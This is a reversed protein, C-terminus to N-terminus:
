NFVKKYYKYGNSIHKTYYILWCESNFSETNQTLRYMYIDIGQYSQAANNHIISVFGLKFVSKETFLHSLGYVGLKVLPRYQLYIVIMVHRDEHTVCRSYINALLMFSMELTTLIASMPSAVVQLTMLSDDNIITLHIYYLGCTPNNVFQLEHRLCGNIDVHHKQGTCPTILYKSNQSVSKQFLYLACIHLYQEGLANHNEAMSISLELISQKLNPTHGSSACSM